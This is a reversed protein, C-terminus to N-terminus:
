IPTRDRTEIYMANSVAKRFKYISIVPVLFAVSFHLRLLIKWEQPVM